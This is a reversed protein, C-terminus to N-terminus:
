QTKKYIVLGGVVQIPGNTAIIGGTRVTTYSYSGVFNNITLQANQDNNRALVMISQPNLTDAGQPLLTNVTTGIPTLNDFSYAGQVILYQLWSKVQAPTYSTWSVAPLSDVLYYGWYCTNPVIPPTGSTTTVALNHLFIFTRNSKTYENTDIGSYLVAEYMRKFVTDAPNPNTADAGSRYKMYQWANVTLNPNLLFDTHTADTQLPLGALKKCGTFVLFLVPIAAFLLLAKHLSFSPHRM